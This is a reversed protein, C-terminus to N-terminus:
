IICDRNGRRKENMLEFYSKANQKQAIHKSAKKDDFLQNNSSYKRQGKIKELESKNKINLPSTNM